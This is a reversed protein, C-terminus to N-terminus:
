VKAKPSRETAMAYKHATAGAKVEVAPGAVAASAAQKKHKVPRPRKKCQSFNTSLNLFLNHM